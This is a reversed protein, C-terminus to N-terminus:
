PSFPHVTFMVLIEFRVFSNNIKTTGAVSGDTALFVKALKVFKSNPLLQVELTSFTLNTFRAIAGLCLHWDALKFVCHFLVKLKM